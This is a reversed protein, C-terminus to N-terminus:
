GRMALDYIENVVVSSRDVLDRRDNSDWWAGHLSAHEVRSIPDCLKEAAESHM